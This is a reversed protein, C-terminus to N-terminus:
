PRYSYGHSDLVGDGRWMHSLVDAAVPVARTTRRTIKFRADLLDSVEDALRHGARWRTLVNGSRDVCNQTQIDLQYALLTRTEGNVTGQPKPTNVIEHVVILPYINPSEDYPERINM